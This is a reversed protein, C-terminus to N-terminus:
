AKTPSELAQFALRLTVKCLWLTDPRADFHRSAFAFVGMTPVLQQALCPSTSALSRPCSRHRRFPPSMSASLNCWQVAEGYMLGALVRSHAGHRESMRRVSASSSHDSSLGRHCSATWIRLQVASSACGPRISVVPQANYMRKSKGLAKPPSHYRPNSHSARGFRGLCDAM